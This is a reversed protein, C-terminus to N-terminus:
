DSFSRVVPHAWDIEDPKLFLPEHLPNLPTLQILNGRRRWIRCTWEGNLLAVVAREGARPARSTSFVVVDGPEYKPAMASDEIIAARLQEVGGNKFVDVTEGGKEGGSEPRFLPLALPRRWPTRSADPKEVLPPAEALRSPWRHRCRLLAALLRLVHESAEGETLGRFAATVTERFHAYRTQPRPSSPLLGSAVEQFRALLRRYPEDDEPASAILGTEWDEATEYTETEPFSVESLWQLARQAFRPNVARDKLLLNRLMEMEEATGGSEVGNGGLLAYPPVELIKGIRDLLDTNIRRHEREIRSIYSKSVGLRKALDGAKMGRQLRLKRIKRGIDLM